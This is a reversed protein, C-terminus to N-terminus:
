EACQIVLALTSSLGRGSPAVTVFVWSNISLTLVSM